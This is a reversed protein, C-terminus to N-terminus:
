DFASRVCSNLNPLSYMRLWDHHRIQTHKAPVNVNVNVYSSAFALQYCALNNSALQIYAPVIVQMHTTMHDEGDM